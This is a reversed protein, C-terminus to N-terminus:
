LHNLLSLAVWAATEARLRNEGLTIFISNEKKFFDIEAESFGGEPGIFLHINKEEEFFLESIKQTGVGIEPVLWVDNKNRKLSLIKEPESIPIFRPQKSQKLATYITEKWKQIKNKSAITHQTIIPRFEKVGIEVSKELQLDFTSGKLLAPHFVIKNKEEIEKKQLINLLVEKKSIQEIKTHYIFNIGDSICIKDGIKKRLVKGIHHVELNNKLTINKNNIFDQNNIFFLNHQTM